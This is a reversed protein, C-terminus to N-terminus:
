LSSRCHKPLQVQKIIELFRGVAAGTIDYSYGSSDYSWGVHDQDAENYIEHPRLENIIRYISTPDGLDGRHLTIKDMIHTINVTNGTASKRVIGHVDYGKQLLLEALYSGDQGTIGAILAKKPSM